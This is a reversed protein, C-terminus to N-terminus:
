LILKHKLLIKHIKKTTQIDKKIFNSIKNLSNSGDAYQLFNMMNRILLPRTQNGRKPYLNRKGMQPECIYKAVPYKLKKRTKKQIVKKNKKYEEDIYIIADKIVKHSQALGRETVVRGFVDGSSHYEKYTGYKSRMMTAIPLDIGPSNYQREDSGRDLFSYKKFRIKNKKYSKLAAVDSISNGYKSPLFSYCREDGVCSLNFGGVVNAKLKDKFHAIYAISGITEPIFVFRISLNNKRKKFYNFLKISLLPGSLENNAMSPHCIYTSILIERESEGKIIVDAFTLKGNKKFSSNINVYFDDNSEYKSNLKKFDNFSLCFGWDLNYYSTVYPIYKKNNKDFYIKKFLSNKDLVKKIPRSYNVLHLNNKKFDIIKKGKSDKIWADKINWEPPVRWDFVKTGSKIEKVKLNKIYKSIINLSKRVGDGTISRCIPFLKKGIKILKM